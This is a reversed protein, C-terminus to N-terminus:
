RFTRLSPLSCSAQKGREILYLKANTRGSPYGCGVVSAIGVAAPRIQPLSRPAGLNPMEFRSLETARAEIRKEGVGLVLSRPMRGSFGRLGGADLHTPGRTM